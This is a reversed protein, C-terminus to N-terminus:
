NSLKNLRSMPLTEEFTKTALIYVTYLASVGVLGYVVRSLSTMEGFLTSVLDINFLSIMGWNAGGIVLLVLMAWDFANLNKM